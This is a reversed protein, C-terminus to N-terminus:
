RKYDPKPLPVPNPNELVWKVALECLRDIGANDGSNANIGSFLKKAETLEETSLAIGFAFHKLLANLMKRYDANWNAGGNRYFEDAIRGTIRIVEGQITKAAGQSPVLLEWLENHQKQWKQSVVTIKSVGDHTQRKAVPEVGFLAYLKSLAADTEALYDKNFNDRHFEFESGIRKVSKAMDPTIKAGADLLLVAIEAMGVINSNRCCALAYGLPTQKMSNEANIDAGHELLIRVTDVRYFGAAIHLPTDGDRAFKKVDAGLELLLKVIESGISAHQYLPTRNYYDEVNIDLGQEVLWRVLSEPVNYFHLATEKSYASDYAYLECKDYVAKIATFDGAEILEKFNKPLTIRKKKAKPKQEVVLEIKSNQETKDKRKFIDFISKINFM